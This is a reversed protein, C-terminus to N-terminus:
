RRNIMVIGAAVLALAAWVQAAIQEGLLAWGFVVALVPSLFSFSAVANATYIAMVRLWFLFGFAAVVVIQFAMGAVHVPAPVRILPGFLPAAALLIIASVVLQFVLQQEPRAERLPSIRVLLAIGAWFWAAALALLDGSIRAAGGSRSALALIVGAMALVLGLARLGSLKEAPLLVHGALALWVPMSYLIISVRSVATIDLALFLCLFELAFFLGCLLGWPVVRAPVRVPIRRWRMWALVLVVAGASRLGAQFVPAYGGATVKVVVQNFGLIAAFLTLAVAGALDINRRDSM